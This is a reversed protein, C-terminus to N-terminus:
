SESLERLMKLTYIGTDHGDSWVIHYAYRGVPALDTIRIGPFQAPTLELSQSPHHGQCLACACAARLVDLRIRSTQGDDWGVQLVSDGDTLELSAPFAESSLPMTTTNFQIGIRPIILDNAVGRRM